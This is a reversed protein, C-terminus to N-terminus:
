SLYIPPTDTMTKLVLKKTDREQKVILPFLNKTLWEVVLKQSRGRGEGVLIIELSNANM